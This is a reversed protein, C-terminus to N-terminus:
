GHRIRRSRLPFHELGLRLALAHRRAAVAESTMVAHAADELGLAALQLRYARADLCFGGPVPLGPRIMRALNAAKPGFRAAERAGPDDLRVLFPSM